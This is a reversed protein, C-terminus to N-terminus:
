VEGALEKNDNRVFLASIGVVTDPFFDKIKNMLNLISDAAAKPSSSKLNNTGVHPILKDPKKRFLPKVFDNKDEM